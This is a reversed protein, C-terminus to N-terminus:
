VERFLAAGAPKEKEAGRQAAILGRLQEILKERATDDHLTDVLRQLEDTSVPAPEAAQAAPLPAIFLGLLLIFIGRVGARAGRFRPSPPAWQPLLLLTLPKRRCM